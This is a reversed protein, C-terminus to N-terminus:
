WSTQKVTFNQGGATITVVRVANSASNFPSVTFSENFVGAAAGTPAGTTVAGPQSSSVAPTCGAASATITFSGTGGSRGFSAAWSGLSYACAAASQNVTLVQNGIRIMGSRATPFPNATASYTITGSTGNFSTSVTLWGAFSVASTTCGAVGATVGATANSVGAAALSISALSLTYSCPAANQTVTFTQGAITISGSRPAAVGNASALFQVDDTGTSSAGSTVTLWSSDNSVATWGCGSAAIVGTTGPGGGPPVTAGASRLTYSCAPLQLVAVSQGGMNLQAHRQVAGATVTVTISGNGTGGSASLGAWTSDSTASWSCASNSATIGILGTGGTSSFPTGLGTTDLSIDCALGQQSIQFPQGGISLAGARSSVTSNPDISYFLTGGPGSGTGGSTVTIWNPGTVTSYACGAPVTVSVSGPGGAATISANQSGLTVTCNNASQSVSITQGGITATFSRATASPNATVAVNVQSPAPGNAPSVTVNAADSTTSAYTCGAASATVNVAASGGAPPVSISSESLAFSCGGAFQTVAHTQGGATISASRQNGTNNAAATYNVTGSGSGSAEGSFSIWAAGTAATWVCGPGTLVRFSGPGGGIPISQTDPDLQYSCAPAAAVTFQQTVPPAAQFAGNGAQNATVSCTGTAALTVTSGTVTCVANTSSSFTVSLGSSATASIAFPPTGLAQTSITNFTITQAVPPLVTVKGASATLAVANGSSDTASVNSLALAYDGNVANIQLQISLDVVSGDALLNQNLGIVVARKGGPIDSTSLQKQAATAAAGAALSISMTSADFGLDFQLGSISAGQTQLTISVTAQKGAAQSATGASLTAGQLGATTFALAILSRGLRM